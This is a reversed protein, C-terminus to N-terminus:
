PSFAAQSMSLTLGPASLVPAPADRGANQTGQVQAKWGEGASEAKLDEEARSLEGDAAEKAQASGKKMQQRSAANLRDKQQARQGARQGDPGPGTLVPQKQPAEAAQKSGTAPGQGPLRSQGKQKPQRPGMDSKSKAAAKDKAGPKKHDEMALADMPKSATEAPM